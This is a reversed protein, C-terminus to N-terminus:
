VVARAEQQSLEGVPITEIQTPAYRANAVEARLLETASSRTALVLQSGEVSRVYYLLSALAAPDRHADDVVIVAPTHASSPSRENADITRGPSLVIVPIRPNARQFDHLAEVLLRTKGRGGPGTVVVVPPWDGRRDLAATLAALEAQRGVRPGLDNLVAGPDQRHASFTDLSLFADEGPIELLLKRKQVGWTADLVDRRKHLPLDDLLRGLRAPRSTAM